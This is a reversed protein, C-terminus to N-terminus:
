HNVRADILWEPGDPKWERRGRVMIGREKPPLEGRRVGAEYEAKARERMRADTAFYAQYDSAEIYRNVTRSLLLPAHAQPSRAPLRTNPLPGHANSFVPRPHPSRNPTSGHLTHIHFFITDGAAGDIRLADDFTWEGRVGLHSPTDVHELHGFAHSGPVVYLPGNDLAGSTDVAYSLTAVAGARGFMFYASDQHLYKPNGGPKLGTAVSLDSPSLAGMMAESLGGLSSANAIPEKYFCQGKGFLEIHEWGVTQQLVDLTAKDTAAHMMTADSHYDLALVMAQKDRVHGEPAPIFLTQDPTVWGVLHEENQVASIHGAEMLRLSAAFAEEAAARIKPAHESTLGRVVIAGYKAFIAAAEGPEADARLTIQDITVNPLRRRLDSVSPPASMTTECHAPREECAASALLCATAMLGVVSTHM